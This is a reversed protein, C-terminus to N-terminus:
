ACRASPEVKEDPLLQALARRHPSPVPLGALEPLLFWQQNENPQTPAPHSFVALTIRHHTFPFDLSLLPLCAPAAPLRPLIWMGRWRERSQELLVRGASHALSHSETLHVTAPRKRRIPLLAPQKARCFRRVPCEGCRPQRPLCVLAGLDILSSNHEGGRRVPLLATAAQWLHARAATTEIPIQLNTLRALVRGTNAEVIPESLDFAFSAIAGATYRGIGPLQAISAVDTPLEGHFHERVFRAAAHLNRARAYYGLGQWAHLVESENARALAAFDPFRALWRQYYPIVTAVQTQQLMFESVLIAYPDRTRRWPLDRGRLRFWRRLSRRFYRTDQFLDSFEARQIM